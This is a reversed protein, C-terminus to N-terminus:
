VVVNSIYQPVCFLGPPASFQFLVQETNATYRFAKPYLRNAPTLREERYITQLALLESKFRGWFHAYQPHSPRRREVDCIHCGRVGTTARPGKRNYAGANEISRLIVDHLERFSVITACVSTAIWEIAVSDGLRPPESARSGETTAVIQPSSPTPLESPKRRNESWVSSGARM